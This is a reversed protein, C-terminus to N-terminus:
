LGKLVRDKNLHSWSSPPDLGRYCSVVGIKELTSWQTIALELDQLFLDHWQIWTSSMSETPICVMFIGSLTQAVMLSQDAPTIPFTLKWKLAMMPFEIRILCCPALSGFSTYAPAVTLQQYDMKWRSWRLPLHLSARSQLSLAQTNRDYSFKNVCSFPFVIFVIIWFGIERALEKYGIAEIM